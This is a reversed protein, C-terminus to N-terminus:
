KPNRKMSDLKKNKSCFTIKSLEGNSNNEVARVSEGRISLILDEVFAVTKTRAM